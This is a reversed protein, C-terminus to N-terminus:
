VRPARPSSLRQLAFGTGTLVMAVGALIILDWGTFPLSGVKSELGKAKAPHRGAAGATGTSSLILGM